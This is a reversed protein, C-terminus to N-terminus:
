DNSINNKINEISKKLQRADNINISINEMSSDVASAIIVCCIIGILTIIEFMIKRRWRIWILSLFSFSTNKININDTKNVHPIWFNIKKQTKM